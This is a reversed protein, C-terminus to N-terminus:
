LRTIHSVRLWGAAKQRKKQMSSTQGQNLLFRGPRQRVTLCSGNNFVQGKRKFVQSHMTYTHFHVRNYYVSM